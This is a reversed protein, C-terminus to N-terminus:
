DESECVGRGGCVFELEKLKGKWVRRERGRLFLLSNRMRFNKATPIHKKKEGKILQNKTKELLKELSYIRLSRTNKQTIYRTYESDLILKPSDYRALEGGVILKLSGYRALEGGDILKQICIFLDFWKLIWIM